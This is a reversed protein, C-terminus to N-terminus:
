PLLKFRTGPRAPEFDLDQIDEFWVKEWKPLYRGSWVDFPRRYYDVGDTRYIHQRHMYFLGPKMEWCRVRPVM